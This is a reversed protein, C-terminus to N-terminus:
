FENIDQDFIKLDSSYNPTFNGIFKKCNNSNMYVYIIFKLINEKKRSIYLCFIDFDRKRTM